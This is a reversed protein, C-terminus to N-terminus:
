AVGRTQEAPRRDSFHAKVLAPGGQDPYHATHEIRDVYVDADVTGLKAFRDNIQLTISAADLDVKRFLVYGVANERAGAKTAELGYQM